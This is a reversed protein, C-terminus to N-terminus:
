KNLDPCLTSQGEASEESDQKTTEVLEVLVGGTSKPHLFAVRRGGVGIRIEGVIDKGEAKCDTLTEELDQVVIAVHHMGEGHIELFRAITSTGGLPELLEVRGGEKGYIAVKVGETTHTEQHELRLGLLQYLDGAKALSKVAIGVHDVSGSNM